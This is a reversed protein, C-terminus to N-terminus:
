RHVASSNAADIRKQKRRRILRWLTILVLATLGGSMDIMSDYISATRSPVFSQHYEDTLAYFCILVAAALFWHRRLSRHTSNRFARAAFLGLITYEGFHGAKRVLLHVLAIAENSIRPWFWRILPELVLATHSASLESTSAFFIAAMWLVLPAYRWLRGRTQRKMEFADASSIDSMWFQGWLLHLSAAIQQKGAFVEKASQQQL